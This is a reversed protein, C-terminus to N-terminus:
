KDGEETTYSPREHRKRTQISLPTARELSNNVANHLINLKKVISKM